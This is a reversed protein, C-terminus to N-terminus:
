LSDYWEKLEPFTSGFDKERRQDIIRSTYLVREFAQLSSGSKQTVLQTLSQTNVGQGFQM